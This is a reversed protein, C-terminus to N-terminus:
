ANHGNGHEDWIARLAGPTFAEKHVFAAAGAAAREVSPVDGDASVLVVVSGPVAVGLRASTELGDLGPMVVDVLVLDPELARATELAEEGSAAEGVADFGPTAAVVGRAATRSSAQDDVILVTVPAM